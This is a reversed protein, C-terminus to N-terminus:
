VVQRIIFSLKVNYTIDYSLKVNSSYPAVILEESINVNDTIFFIIPVFRIIAIKYITMYDDLKISVFWDKM